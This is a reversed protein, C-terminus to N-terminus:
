SSFFPSNEALTPLNPAALASLQCRARRVGPMELELAAEGTQFAGFVGCGVVRCVAAREGMAGFITSFEAGDSGHKRILGVAIPHVCM